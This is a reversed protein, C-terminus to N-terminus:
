RAMEKLLYRVRNTYRHEAVLEMGRARVQKAEQKNRIIYEIKKKLEEIDGYM